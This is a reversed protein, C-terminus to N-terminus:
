RSWRRLGQLLLPDRISELVGSTPDGHPLEVGPWRGSRRWTEECLLHVRVRTLLRGLGDEWLWLLGPDDDPHQLCLSRPHSQDRHRWRREPGLPYVFAREDRLAVVRVRESPFGEELADLPSDFTVTLAGALGGSLLCGSVDAVGWLVGSRLELAVQQPAEVLRGM